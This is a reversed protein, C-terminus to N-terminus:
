IRERIAEGRPRVLSAVMSLAEVVAAIHPAHASGSRMAAYINRAPQSPKVPLAVLQDRQASLALAPVLAVASGEAVLCILADWDNVRHCTRATISAAALAAVTIDVCPHGPTGM